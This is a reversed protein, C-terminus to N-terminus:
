TRLADGDRPWPPARTTQSHTHALRHCAALNNYRPQLNSGGHDSMGGLHAGRCCSCTGAATTARASRLPVPPHVSACRDLNGQSLYSPLNHRADSILSPHQDHHHARRQRTPIFFGPPALAARWDAWFFFFTGLARRGGMAALAHRAQPEWGQAKHRKKCAAVGVGGATRLYELWPQARRFLRSKKGQEMVDYRALGFCDDVRWGATGLRMAATRKPRSEPRRTTAGSAATAVTAPETASSRRM